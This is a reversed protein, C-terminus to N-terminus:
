FIAVAKGQSLRITDGFGQNYLLCNFDIVVKKLKISSSTGKYITDKVSVIKFWSYKQDIYFTSYREKLDNYWNITVESLHKPDPSDYKFTGPVLTSSIDNDKNIYPACFNNISIEVYSRNPNIYDEISFTYILLSDHNNFLRYSNALYTKEGVKYSLPIGNYLAEFYVTPAQNSSPELTNDECSALALVILAAMFIKISLIKM